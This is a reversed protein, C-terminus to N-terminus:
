HVRAVRYMKRATGKNNLLNGLEFSKKCLISLYNYEALFKLLFCLFFTVKKSKKKKQPFTVKKRLFSFHLKKSSKNIYKM